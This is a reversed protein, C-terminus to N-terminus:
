VIAIHELAELLVKKRVPKALYRTCGAERSRIEEGEMAHASLAIIPIPSRGLDREWQRIERTATYGDMKPMQVDMIVVDFPHQKIQSLAELGDNVMVLHYPTKALFAEFLIRNEETDEALLVRLPKAVAESSISSVSGAGLTPAVQRLPLAFSFVSGRGVGSTVAIRGGMLEVLGRSIALGLGTGGYRRTIGVDGQVFHEFIKKHLDLDIGIGTDTVSFALMQPNEPSLTLSVEVWGKQTFKIANSVLNILVQRVRADDGMVRDPINAAVYSRLAIDKNAASLYMLQVTEEVIQRPAYAVDSLLIKGSEIRSFDLIDNIVGLLAKGSSQMTEAYRQQEATLSTELLLEAMGLVVNMPTRIEHSMSALFRSKESNAKDALVMARQLQEDLQKREIIGALTHAVTYLLEEEEVDKVHDKPMYVNLVGLFRGRATIPLCYHSHPLMGECRVTHRPDESDAFILQNSAMAMGCICQGTAVRACTHILSEHIGKQVKLILEDCEDDFLFIVGKNLTILWSASLVLDLAIALQEDLTGPRTVLQLLANILIQNQLLRQTRREEKKRATVDRAVASFFRKGNVMWSSLAVELPFESGDKRKAALDFTQGLWSTKDSNRMKIVSKICFNRSREPVLTTFHKGFIEEEQYGFITQAGRNWFTLCGEEDASVIADGAADAIHRIQLESEQLAAEMKKKGHILSQKELVREISSRLLEPYNSGTEKVVYDAAGEHIAAIATELNGFGSVMIVPPSSQNMMMQRLVGLGDLHPMKYDLVVADFHDHQLIELGSLGDAATETRIGYRGLRRQVLQALAEDDEMYLIRPNKQLADM